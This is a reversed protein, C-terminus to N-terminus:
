WQPTDGVLTWTLRVEGRPQAHAHPRPSASLMAFDKAVHHRARGNVLVVLRDQDFSRASCDSQEEVQHTLVRLGRDRSREILLDQGFNYVHEFLIIARRRLGIDAKSEARTIGTDSRPTHENDRTFHPRGLEGRVRNSAEGDRVEIIGALPVVRLGEPRFLYIM